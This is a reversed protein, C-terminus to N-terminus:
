RKGKTMPLRLRHQGNHKPGNTYKSWNKFEIAKCDKSLPRVQHLNNRFRMTCVLNSIYTKM